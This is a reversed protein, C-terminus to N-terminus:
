GFLSKKPAETTAKSAAGGSRAKTKDRTKGANRDEWRHIEKAESEEARIEAVCLDDSNRFVKDIDNVTRTEGEVPHYKGDDGKAMKPELIQLVGLKVEQGLIDMIVHKKQPVEKKAQYDWIALTKEETYMDALEKGVTLLCISNVTNYGPLYRQNGEKDVYYNLNGKADGSSVYITQKLEKGEPTKFVFNVNMAGGASKDVYAMDIVATYVGSEWPGYLSGGTSTPTNDEMAADSKFNGFISM